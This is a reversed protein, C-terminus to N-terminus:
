PLSGWGGLSGHGVKAGLFSGSVSAAAIVTGARTRLANLAREQEAL